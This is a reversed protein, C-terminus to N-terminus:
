IATNAMSPVKKAVARIAIGFRNGLKGFFGGYNIKIVEYALLFMDQTDACFLENVLDETLIVAKRADPDEYSVNRNIILLEKLLNELQDGSLSSFAGSIAPAVAEFSIDFPNEKENLDIQDLLPLLGGIIPTILSTLNGSINAARFAPFPRIYFTNEGVTVTHTDLQKM